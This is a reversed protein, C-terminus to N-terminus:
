DPLLDYFYRMADSRTVIGIVKGDEVVPLRGIDHKVMISAAEMPSRGPEITKVDRSMFAKVPAKLASNKKVRGFDRRSIIGVVKEGDLVPVGMCDRAMLEKKVEKMPTESPITFVPFSMIDSVQVSARQNGAILEVIMEEVIDPNVFDIQASGAGPHGGGGLSGMIAGINLADSNSRGIIISKGRKKGTFIGFVADVNLIDRCMQVVVSLNNVHGNINVTHFSVSHGNIRRREESKLMEFLINKQQQGYVPRLLNGVIALDAENELLWAAATADEPTTSPFMLHGTDEHLGTLFLTAQIPSLPIQKERLKRIMLTINAGITEHCVRNAGIDGKDPHHDWLIVELDDKSRLPKMNDLRGWRNVDVVILRRIASLDIEDVTRVDFMDKHISLFAKVNPNVSRPIVPVTDPYLLTAAIMSAMGDFDTNKHTTVIASATKRGPIAKINDM